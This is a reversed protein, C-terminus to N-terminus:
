LHLLVPDIYCKSKVVERVEGHEDKVKLKVSQNGPYNRIIVSFGDSSLEGQVPQTDTGYNMELIEQVKYDLFLQHYTNGDADHFGDRPVSQAFGSLTNLGFFVTFLLYPVAKMKINFAFKFIACEKLIHL